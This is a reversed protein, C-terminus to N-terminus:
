VTIVQILDTLTGESFATSHGRHRRFCLILVRFQKADEAEGSFEAILDIALKEEGVFNVGFLGEFVREFGCDESDVLLQVFLAGPDQVFFVCPDQDCHVPAIELFYKGLGIVWGDGVTWGAVQVGEVAFRGEM